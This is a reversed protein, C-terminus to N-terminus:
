SNGFMMGLMFAVTTAIVTGILHIMLGETWRETISAPRVLIVELKDLEPLRAARLIEPNMEFSREDLANDEDDRKATDPVTGTPPTPTM